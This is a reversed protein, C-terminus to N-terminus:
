IPSPSRYDAVKSTVITITKPCWLGHGYLITFNILLHQTKESNWWSALGGDREREELWGIGL